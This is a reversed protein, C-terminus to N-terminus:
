NRRLDVIEVATDIQTNDTPIPQNRPVIVGSGDVPTPATPTPTLPISTTGNAAIVTSNLSWKCGKRHGNGGNHHASVLAILM